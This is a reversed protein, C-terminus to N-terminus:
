VFRTVGALWAVSDQRYKERILRVQKRLAEVVLVDNELEFVWCFNQWPMQSDSGACFHIHGKYALIADGTTRVFDAWEVQTLKDDSNGIQLTITLM